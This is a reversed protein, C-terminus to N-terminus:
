LPEYYIDKILANVEDRLQHDDRSAASTITHDVKLGNPLYIRVRQGGPIVEFYYRRQDEDLVYDEGKIEEDAWRRQKLLVGTFALLGLATFTIAAGPSKISEISSELIGTTPPEVQAPHNASGLRGATPGGPQYLKCSFTSEVMPGNGWPMPMGKEIRVQWKACAGRTQGGLCHVGPQCAGIHMAHKALEVEDPKVLFFKCTGCKGQSHTPSASRRSRTSKNRPM